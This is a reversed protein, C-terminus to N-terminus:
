ILRQFPIQLTEQFTLINVTKIASGTEIRDVHHFATLGAQGSTFPANGVGSSRAKDTIAATVKMIMMAMSTM